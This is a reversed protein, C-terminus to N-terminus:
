YNSPRYKETVIWVCKTIHNVNNHGGKSGLMEKTGLPDVQSDNAYFFGAELPSRVSVMEKEEQM